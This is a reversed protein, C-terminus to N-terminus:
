TAVEIRALVLDQAYEDQPDASITVELRASAAITGDSARTFHEAFHEASFHSLAGLRVAVATIRQVGEAKAVEAIRRMLGAMLTSEHM